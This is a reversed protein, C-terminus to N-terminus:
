DDDSDRLFRHSPNNHRRHRKKDWEEISAAETFGEARAEQEEIDDLQDMDSFEAPVEDEVDATQTRKEAAREQMGQWFADSKAKKEVFEKSFPRRPRDASVDVHPIVKPETTTARDFYRDLLRQADNADTQRTTVDAKVVYQTAANLGLLDAERKMLAVMGNIADKDAKLYMPWLARIGMEIRALQRNRLDELKPASVEEHYLKLRNQVTGLSVGMKEAIQRYGMGGLVLEHAQQAQEMYRASPTKSRKPM